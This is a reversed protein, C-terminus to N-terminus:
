AKKRNDVDKKWPKKLLKRIKKKKKREIDASNSSADDSSLVHAPQKQANALQRKLDEIEKRLEDKEKMDNDKAIGEDVIYDSNSLASVMSTASNVLSPRIPPARVISTNRPQAFTSPINIQNMFTQLMQEVRVLRDETSDNNNSNLAETMNGDDSMQSLHANENDSENISFFLNKSDQKISLFELASSFVEKENEVSQVINAIALETEELSNEGKELKEKLDLLEPTNEFTLPSPLPPFPM